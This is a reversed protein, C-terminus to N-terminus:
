QNCYVIVVRDINNLDKVVKIKSNPYYEKILSIIKDKQNYGIEFFIMGYFSLKTLSQKLIQKYYFM